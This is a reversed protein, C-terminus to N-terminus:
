ENGSNYGAPEKPEVPRQKCGCDTDKEYEEKNCSTFSLIFVVALLYFITKTKM